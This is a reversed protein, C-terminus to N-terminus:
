VKMDYGFPTNVVLSNQYVRRMYHTVYEALTIFGGGVKTVLVNNILDIKIRKKGKLLFIERNTKLYPLAVGLTDM